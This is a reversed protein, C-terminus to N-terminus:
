HLRHLKGLHADIVADVSFDKNHRRVEASVSNREDWAGNEYAAMAWRRVDETREKDSSWEIVCIICVIISMVMVGISFGRIFDPSNTM